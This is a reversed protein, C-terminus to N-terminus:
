AKGILSRLVSNENELEDIRKKLKAKDGSRDLYQRIKEVLPTKGDIPAYLYQGKDNLDLEEAILDIVECANEYRRMFLKSTKTRLFLINLLNDASIGEHKAYFEEVSCPEIENLEAELEIKRQDKM